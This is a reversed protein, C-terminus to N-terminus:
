GHESELYIMLAGIDAPSVGSIRGAQGLNLPHIKQLKQRAELRLGKLNNYDLDPPLSHGELRRLEEVQRLQRQIYGEYKVAIEVQERVAQPLQ